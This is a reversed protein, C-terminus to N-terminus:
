YYCMERWEEIMVEVNRRPIEPAIQDIPCLVFGGGPALTEVAARVAARIEAESGTGLTVFSNLGGWLCVQGGIRAKIEALDAGGQVPDVGWLVDIGLDLYDQYHDAFSKTMIYEYLAGAQHVMDIERKLLPKLFRRYQRPSWFDTVHYWGRHVITDVGADLLIEIRTQEYQWLMELLAQVLAPQDVQAFILGEVGLLWLMSDGWEIWGGEVLVDHRRAFAKIQGARERFLRLQEKNPPQLLYRLPELDQEGKVLFEVGSSVNLDAYGGIFPIDDPVVWVETEKVVQRLTGAPTTYEKCLLPYRSDEPRERWVRTAVGELGAWAGERGVYDLESLLDHRVPAPIRHPVELRLTDDLGLALLKETRELSSNFQVLQGDPWWLSWLPVHDPKEHRMAALLRERSSLAANM